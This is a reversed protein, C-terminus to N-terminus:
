ARRGGRAVFQRFRLHPWELSSRMLFFTRKLSLSLTARGYPLHARGCKNRKVRAAAGGAGEGEGM